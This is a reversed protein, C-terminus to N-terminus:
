EADSLRQAVDDGFTSTFRSTKRRIKSAKCVAEACTAAPVIVPVTALGDCLGSFPAATSNVWILRVRLAADNGPVQACEGKGIQRRTFVAHVRGSVAKALVRLRHGADARNQSGLIGREPPTISFRCIVPSGSSGPTTGAAGRHGSLAVYGGGGQAIAVIVEVDPEIV